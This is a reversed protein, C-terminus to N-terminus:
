PYRHRAPPEAIAHVIRKALDQTSIRGGFDSPVCGLYRSCHKRMERGDPYGAAAAAWEVSELGRSIQEFGVLIRGLHLLANPGCLEARRLAREFRRRKIQLSGLLPAISHAGAPRLLVRLVDAGVECSLVRLVPALRRLLAARVSLQSRQGLYQRLLAPQSELNRLVIEAYPIKNAVLISPIMGADLTTWLVVRAAAHLIPMSIRGLFESTVARPDVILVSAQGTLLMKEVVVPDLTRTLEAVPGIAHILQSESELDVCCVVSM